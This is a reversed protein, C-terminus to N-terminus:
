VFLMSSMRRRSKIVFDPDTPQMVEFFQVLVERAAFDQFSKDLKLVGLAAEVAEERRGAGFYGRALQLRADLDPTEGEAGVAAELEGISAGGGEAQPLALARVRLALRCATRVVRCQM